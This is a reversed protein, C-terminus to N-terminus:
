EPGSEGPPNERFHNQRWRRFDWELTQHNAGQRKLWPERERTYGPIMERMWPWGRKELLFRIMMASQAYALNALGPELAAFSGMLADLPLYANQRHAAALLDLHRSTLEQSLYVALGEDLWAPIADHGCLARVAMHVYEHMILVYLYQPEPQTERDLAARIRGDFVGAAWGSAVSDPARNKLEERTNYIELEVPLPAVGFWENGKSQARRVCRYVDELVLSRNRIHFRITVDDKALTVFDDGGIYSRVRSSAPDAAAYVRLKELLQLRHSETGPIMALLKIADEYNGASELSAIVERLPGTIDM